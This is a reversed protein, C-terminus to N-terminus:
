NLMGSKDAYNFLFNEEYRASVVQQAALSLAILVLNMMNRQGFM